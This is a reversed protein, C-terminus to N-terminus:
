INWHYEFLNCMSYINYWFLYIYRRVPFRRDPIVGDENMNWASM